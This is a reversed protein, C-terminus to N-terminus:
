GAIEVLFASSKHVVETTFKSQLFDGAVQFAPVCKFKRVEYFFEALLFDQKWWGIFKVELRKKVTLFPTHPIALEFWWFRRLFQYFPKHKTHISRPPLQPQQPFYPPLWIFHTIKWFSNCFLVKQKLFRKWQKLFFMIQMKLGWLGWEELKVILFENSHFINSLISIHPLQHTYLFM